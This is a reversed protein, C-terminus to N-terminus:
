NPFPGHECMRLLLTQGPKEKTTTRQQGQCHATSEGWLLASGPGQRMVRSFQATSSDERFCHKISCGPCCRHTAKRRRDQFEWALGEYGVRIAFVGSLSDQPSYDLRGLSFLWLTMMNLMWYFFSTCHHLFILDMVLIFIYVSGSMVSIISNIFFSKLLAMM